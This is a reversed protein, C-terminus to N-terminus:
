REYDRYLPYLTSIAVRQLDSSDLVYENNRYGKAVIEKAREMSEAVLTVTKALTEEIRVTYERM